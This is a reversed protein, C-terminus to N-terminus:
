GIQTAKKQVSDTLEFGEPDSYKFIIADSSKIAQSFATQSESTNSALGVCVCNNFDDISFDVIEFGDTGNRGSKLYQYIDDMLSVLERYSYKASIFIVDESNAAKLIESQASSLDNINKTKNESVLVVLDSNSNIYAGAFSDPFEEASIGNVTYRDESYIKKSDPQNEYFANMMSNYACTAKELNEQLGFNDESSDAQNSGEESSSIWLPLYGPIYMRVFHGSAEDLTYSVSIAGRWQLLGAWREMQDWSTGLDEVQATCHYEKELYRIATNQATKIGFDSHCYVALNVIYLLVLALVLLSITTITKKRM